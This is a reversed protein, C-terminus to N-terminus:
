GRRTFGAIRALVWALPDDVWASSVFDGHAAGAVALFAISGPVLRRPPEVQFPIRGDSLMAQLAANGARSSDSYASFFFASRHRRAIWGAFKDVEGYLADLLVVGQVRREAGGVALAWAAPLYGGSYAVLVVPMREFAAAGRSGGHLAALHQAAEHLFRAFGGPDWFHGASSDLADAAFQPAALVANLGSAAVQEPVRQRGCVDRQLLTANGHLFVVLVAPRGADFGAPIQLLVRRDSYTEDEWYVGGRPATHGRRRGDTADLFPLGTQPIRGRYPFPATEFAVLARREGAAAASAGAHRLLGPGLVLAALVSRRRPL